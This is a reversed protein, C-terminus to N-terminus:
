SRRDESTGASTRRRVSAPKTAERIHWLVTEELGHNVSLDPRWDLRDRIHADDIVLSETLRAIKESNGTALGFLRLLFVPVPLLLSMREAARDIRRILETTSLSENDRVLFTEGVAAPHEICLTIASALNTVHIMSRKNRILGFPLPVRKQLLDLLARFNGKVNPGYVLPPRLVVMEMGFARSVQWLAQEAEWKSKAYPDAPMAVDQETFPRLHTREGNVKVTSVFIFRKVGSTAAAEALHLAGESNVSMFLEAADDPDEDMVHARGALHVVVDIYFLAEMWDTDPGLDDVRRPRASPPVAEPNRASGSVTYGKKALYDCLAAGVFGNAGTVLVNKYIM